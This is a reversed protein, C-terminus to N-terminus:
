VASLAVSDIVVVSDEVVESGRDLGGDDDGDDDLVVSRRLSVDDGVVAAGNFDVADGFGGVVGNFRLVHLKV